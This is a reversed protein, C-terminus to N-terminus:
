FFCNHCMKRRRRGSSTPFLNTIGIHKMQVSAPFTQDIVVFIAIIATLKLVNTRMMALATLSHAISKATEILNSKCGSHSIQLYLYSNQLIIKYKQIMFFIIFFILDFKLAFFNKLHNQIAKTETIM